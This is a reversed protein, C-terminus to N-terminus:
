ADVDDLTRSVVYKTAANMHTTFPNGDSARGWVSTFDQWTRRGFLMDGPRAM